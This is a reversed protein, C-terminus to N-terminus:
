SDNEDAFFVASGGPLVLPPRLRAMVSGGVHSAARWHRAHGSAGGEGSSRRSSVASAAGDPVVNATNIGSMLALPPVLVGIFYCLVAPTKVQLM